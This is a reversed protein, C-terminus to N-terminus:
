YVWFCFATADTCGSRRGRGTRASSSHGPVHSSLAGTRAEEPENPVLWRRQFLVDLLQVGAVGALHDYCTRAQRMTTNHRVQREAQQSRPLITLTGTRLVELVATIHAADLHYVRQRGVRHETVLGAKRLYALHTSVQPQPIGLRAVIDSVTAEGELLLLLIRRRTFDAFVQARQVCLQVTYIEEIQNTTSIDRSVLSIITVHLDVIDYTSGGWLRIAEHSPARHYLRRQQAAPTEVM